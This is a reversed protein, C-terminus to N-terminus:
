KYRYSEVIDGWSRVLYSGHHYILTLNYTDGMNVYELGHGAYEVGYGGLLENFMSMRIDHASPLRYCSDIWKNTCPFANELLENIGKRTSKIIARTLVADHRTVDQHISMISKISPARRMEEGGEKYDQVGLGFLYLM